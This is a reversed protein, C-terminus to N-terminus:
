RNYPTRVPRPSASRRKVPGSRPAGLLLSMCTLAAEAKHLEDVELARTAIGAAALRARTRPYATSVLTVGGFTLTNAAFPESEDVTIVTAADFQEADVWEPNVLLRGPAIATCASKLHLCGQMPVARVAYGHPALAAALQAVGQPNSRGSTGVYFTRGIRLVDGGELTAPAEIRAVPLHRGLAAAVSEVEGRRAAVGPRTLVALEPVLVATDEVFVGDPQQPLPPLWEIRCGLAALEVTYRRHQLAARAVDIPERELFTLECHALSPAVERVWAIM